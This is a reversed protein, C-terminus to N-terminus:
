SQSNETKTTVKLILALLDAIKDSPCSFIINGSVITEPM